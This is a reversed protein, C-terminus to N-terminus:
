RELKIIKAISPKREGSVAFVMYHGPPAEAAADPAKAIAVRYGFWDMVLALELQVYRQNSDWSHTMSPLGMLIVEAPDPRSPDLILYFYEGLRFSEQAFLLNPRNTWQFMYDPYYYRFNPKENGPHGDDNGSGVFVRGDPLLATITHYGRIEPSRVTGTQLSFGNAPDLYQVYEPELNPSPQGADHGSMLLIRGDPLLVTSPHHRRAGMDMNIIWANQHPDFVDLSHEQATLHDGGANLISGNRYGWEGDNLRFPLFTSASGRNLDNGTYGPRPASAEKWKDTGIGEFDFYYPKGTGGMFFMDYRGEVKDKLEFVHTYDPSIIEIPSEAHTSVVTWAQTSADYVELSANKMFNPVVQDYGGTVLMRGDGLRTVSPYWRVGAQGFEGIGMMNQYRTWLSSTTSFVGAFDIGNVYMGYPFSDNIFFRTGGAVFVDGNETLTHGACTVTDLIRTEKQIVGPFPIDVPEPVPDTILEAPFTTLYVPLVNLQYRGLFLNGDPQLVVHISTVPNGNSTKMNILPSWADQVQAQAVSILGFLVFTILNRVIM